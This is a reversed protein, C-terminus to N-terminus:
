RTAFRTPCSTATEALGHSTDLHNNYYDGSAVIAIIEARRPILSGFRAKKRLPKLLPRSNPLQYLRTGKAAGEASGTSRARPRKDETVAGPGFDPCYRRTIGGMVIFPKGCRPGGRLFAVVM